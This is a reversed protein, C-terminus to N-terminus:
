GEGGDPATAERLRRELDPDTAIAEGPEADGGAPRRRGGRRPRRAAEHRRRIQAALEEMLDATGSLFNWGGTSAYYIGRDTHLRAEITVDGSRHTAHPAFHLNLLLPRGYRAIRRLGRAVARDIETLIAPDSAGRLGTIEVYVDSLTGGDRAGRGVALSLLDAQRVISEPRGGAGVVFVSSVRERTMRRAAEGIATGRDVVVAPSHMITRVEVDGPAGPRAADRKGGASPRWLVRGLDAIGVAGTLRGARDVVPLPHDELVRVRALLTRVAESEKVAMTLSRAITSVPPALDIPCRPLAAVLDTRSVIGVLQGRRDLVPAGRLGSALLQEAIEPYTMAPALLPPLLLLHEAKTSLPLSARRAISEFTLLGAFRGRRLVPLEHIGRGRMRGLAESLPAGADITLPDTTLLDAATPWSAPM